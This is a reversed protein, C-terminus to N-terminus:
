QIHVSCKNLVQYLIKYGDNYGGSGGFSFYSFFTREIKIIFIYFISTTLSYIFLTLDSLPVM